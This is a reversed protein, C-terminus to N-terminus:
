LLGVARMLHYGVWVVAGIFALGAVIVGALLVLWARSMKDEATPTM